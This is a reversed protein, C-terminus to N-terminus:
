LEVLIYTYANITTATTIRVRLVDNAAVEFERGLSWEWLHRNEATLVQLDGQRAATITGEASANYGTGTTSLTVGDSAAATASTDTYPQVGAAVHAAVTAAVTGTTLLECYVPVPPIADLLVGWKVVRSQSTRLFQLHTKIATGTAVFTPRATTPMATNAVYFVPAAM